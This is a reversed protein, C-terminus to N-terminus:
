FDKTFLDEFKIGLASSVKVLEEETYMESLQEDNIKRLNMIRNINIGTNDAIQDMEDLTKDGMVERIVPESYFIEEVSKKLIEAIKLSLALSPNSTGRELYYITQRSVRALKAFDQQTINREERLEKIKSVLLKKFEILLSEGYIGLM